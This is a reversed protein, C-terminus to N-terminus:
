DKEASYKFLDGFQNKIKQLTNKNDKLTIKYGLNSLMIAFKLKQSEEIIETGQKYALDTLLVPSSKDNNKVFEKIQFELHSYNANDSAESILANVGNEQGYVALARNDRPFCPGGYGFGYKLNKQGVRSDSGIANLIKTPELDSAIAIDGIMNAYAIKTTVFCNLAIKTIEAEKRSMHHYIPNNTIIKQYIKKIESGIHSNAEGILVIDPKLLDDMITGQAIFEPNYSVTYGYPSIKKQLSDSYGPMTTCGIILHKCKQHNKTYNILQEAVRDIQHHDYKGDNLSPTAVFLFVMNSHELGIKIDTTAVFNKSKKLFESVRPENSKFTKNNLDNIFNENLDVGIVDYGVKELHLAFCLGLKGVGIVTINKEMSNLLVM